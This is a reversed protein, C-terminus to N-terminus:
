EFWQLSKRWNEIAKIRLEKYKDYLPGSFPIVEFRFTPCDHGRIPGDAKNTSRILRM